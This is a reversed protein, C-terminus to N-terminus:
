PKLLFYHRVWSFSPGPVHSEEGWEREGLVMLEEAARRKEYSSRLISNTTEKTITWPHSAVWTHQSHNPLSSAQWGQEEHRSNTKCTPSLITVMQPMDVSPIVWVCATLKIFFAEPVMSICTLSKDGASSLIYTAQPCPREPAWYFQNLSDGAVTKNLIDRSHRHHFHSSWPLTIFCTQYCKKRIGENNRMKYRFPFICPRLLWHNITLIKHAQHTAHRRFIKSFYNCMFDHNIYMLSFQLIHNLINKSEPCNLPIQANHFEKRKLLIKIM